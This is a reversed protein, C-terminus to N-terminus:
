PKDSVNEIPAPLHIINVGPMDPGLKPGDFDELQAAAVPSEGHEGEAFRPTALLLSEAYIQSDPVAALQGLSRDFFVVPNVEPLVVMPGGQEPLRFRVLVQAPNWDPQDSALRVLATRPTLVSDACFLEVPRVTGTGSFALDLFSRGGLQTVRSMELRVGDAPEADCRWAVAVDDFLVNSLTLRGPAQHTHLAYGDGRFIVNTLRVSTSGARARQWELGTIRGTLRNGIVCGQLELIRSSVRLLAAASAASQDFVREVQVNVIQVQDASIEWATDASIEVVAPMQGTAQIRLTGPSRLPAARYRRGAALLVVGDASAAPLDATETVVFAPFRANVRGFAPDVGVMPERNVSLLMPIPGSSVALGVTAVIGTILGSALLWRGRQRRHPMVALDPRRDPLRRLLQRTARSRLVAKARWVDCAAAVSAPRLEPRRRTFTHIQHAMWDPCDPVWRRVDEVDCERSQLLYTVPDASLFVPRSTLLRWLVCGVSYLDSLSDHLQGSGAIEPACYEVDRLRLDARFGTVPRTLRTTFPDVLSVKGDPRLRTNRMSIDGHVLGAQQLSRLGDLLACGIEAVVPPPMRGGRLVLEEVSWGPIWTSVYWGGPMSGHDCYERPMCVIPSLQTRSQGLRDLLTQAGAAAQRSQEDDGGVIRRLVVLRSRDISEAQLTWRGIPQRLRYCGQRMELPRSSLLCDAQWPTLLRHSVLVDLWCLDSDPLDRTIRRVDAEFAALQNPNCLGLEALHSKLNESPSPM